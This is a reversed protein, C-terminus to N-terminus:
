TYFSTKLLSYIASSIRAVIVIGTGVVTFLLISLIPSKGWFLSLDLLGAAVSGILLIWFSIDVLRLGGAPYSRYYLSAIIFVALSILISLAATLARFKSALSVIM